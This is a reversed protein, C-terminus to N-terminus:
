YYNHRYGSLRKRRLARVRERNVSTTDQRTQVREKVQIFWFTQSIAMVIWGQKVQQIRTNCARGRLQKREDYSRDGLLGEGKATFARKVFEDEGNKAFGQKQCGPEECNM